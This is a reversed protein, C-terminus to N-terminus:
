EKLWKEYKKEFEEMTIFDGNEIDRKGQKIGEKMHEPVIFVDDKQIILQNIMELFGEDNLTDIKEHISKKLEILTM